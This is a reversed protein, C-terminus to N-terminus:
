KSPRDIAKGANPGDHWVNNEWTTSAGLDSPYVPGYFGCTDHFMTSFHNGTFKVNGDVHVTYGAGAVLNNEIIAGEGGVLLASTAGDVGDQMLITNHRITFTGNAGENQFGDAHQEPDVNGFDHVFNDEITVPIPGFEIANGMGSFDCRKVVLNKGEYSTRIWTGAGGVFDSDEITLNPGQINLFTDVKTEFRCYKYTVNAIEPRLYPVEDVFKVCTINANSQPEIDDKTAARLGNPCAGDPVGTNTADPWGPISPTSGDTGGEAGSSGSSGGSSSGGSSSSATGGDGSPNSSSSDSSSCAVAAVLFGAVVTSALLRGM